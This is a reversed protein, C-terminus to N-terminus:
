IELHHDRGEVIDRCLLDHLSRWVPGPKGGSVPQGDFEVVATVDPTTGFIFVEAASSMDERGLDAHEVRALEGREVLTRALEMTRLMTTGALIRDTRPVLLERRATLLGINETAGEGLRGNEDFNITFDVGADVAEKKMLANPLYNCTKVTAFFGAKVPIASSRVRAGAPHADMFPPPLRHAVVYLGPRPCEYPNVGFGGPGRSLLVRILCDTKGGARVVQRVIDIIEPETWPSVLGIRGASKFLRAVHERCLYVRGAVCKLTEFVGDGRHVLHDDVPVNMWVPDTVIGGLISSFMAYQNAHWPQRLSALWSPPPASFLPLATM